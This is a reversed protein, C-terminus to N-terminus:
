IPEAALRGMLKEKGLRAAGYGLAPYTDAHAASLGMAMGRRLWGVGAVKVSCNDARCGGVVGDAVKKGLGVAGYGLAPGMDAHAASGGTADGRIRM